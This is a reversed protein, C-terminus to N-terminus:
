EVLLGRQSNGLFKSSAYVPGHTADPAWYLFFPRKVKSQSEIFDLAEQFFFFSFCTFCTNTKYSTSNVEWFYELKVQGTELSSDKTLTYVAHALYVDNESDGFM